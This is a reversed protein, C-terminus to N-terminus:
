SLVGVYNLLIKFILIGSIMYILWLQVCSGELIQCAFQPNGNIVHSEKLKDLLYQDANRNSNHHMELNKINKFVYPLYKQLLCIVFHGELSLISCVENINDNLILFKINWKNLVWFLDLNQELNEFEFFFFFLTCSGMINDLFSFAM